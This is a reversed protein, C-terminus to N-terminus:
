AGRNSAQKDDIGDESFQDDHKGEFESGFGPGLGLGAAEKNGDGVLAEDRRGLRAGDEL